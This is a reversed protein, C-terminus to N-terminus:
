KYITITPHQFRQFIRYKRYDGTQFCKSWRAFNADTKLLMYIYYSLSGYMNGSSSKYEFNRETNMCASVVILTAEGDFQEPKPISKLYNSHGQVVFSENTGRVNRLIDQDDIDIDEGREIGKSYCADIAVFLVGNKGLKKKIANLLLNYEDDILHCQGEYIGKLAYRHADYPIISEELPTDEDDNLDEILQGHGSFHFYINDGSKCRKALSKLESVIAKKTAKQNTLIKIDTFKKSTLMPSILAVDADGHITKWGTNSAYKGIGVLLARNTAYINIFGWIFYILFVYKKM